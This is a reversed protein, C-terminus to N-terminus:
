MGLGYGMRNIGYESHDVDVVDNDIETGSVVRWTLVLAYCCEFGTRENQYLVVVDMLGGVNIYLLLSRSFAM